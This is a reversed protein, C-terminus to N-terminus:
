GDVLLAKQVPAGAVVSALLAVPIITETKGFTPADAANVAQWFMVSVTLLTAQFVPLKGNFAGALGAAGAIGSAAMPAFNMAAPRVAAVATAIVSKQPHFM